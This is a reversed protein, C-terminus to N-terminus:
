FALRAVRSVTQDADRLWAEALAAPEVVLADDFALGGAASAEGRRDGLAEASLRAVAGPEFLDGAAIRDFRDPDKPGVELQVAGTAIVADPTRRYLAAARAFAQAYLQAVSGGGADLRPMVLGAPNGSAGACPGAQEIVLPRIGEVAFARALSLGAIGAGIIVVRPRPSPAPAVGPWVAELRERKRGFGPRKDVVFGQAALERRVAGAVTFTEARAGPASRRAVAGLVAPSWMAPNASPSFGDLFWSDAAGSWAELAEAADMVALDLCAGFAALDVRHFGRARGPWQALLPEAVPALQPWNGLVRAADAAPMPHAEVSFINLRAGPPRTRRWLDLLAVINLGSGFGLEGVVFRSRGAWAQPLGCGQLFVARSEELGDAASFYVDDYLRSRPLGAADWIVPSASDAPRSIPEGPRM